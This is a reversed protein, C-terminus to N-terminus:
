QSRSELWRALAPTQKDRTRICNDIVETTQQVARGAAPLKHSAFFSRVDDRSEVSCFSGLGNVLNIDGLSITVKPALEAWHAKIFAWARDRAADNGTFSALYIATDQSRLAPSLAHELARQVLAPDSFNTLAYLYRYREEPSTANSSARMMADFLSADGHVAAINVLKRAVIPDLPTNGNLAALVAQRAKAVVDPDGVISGLADVVVGRLTRQADTDGPRRDFGLREYSPRLLSAVFAHFKQRTEPGTLYDDIFFFRGVAADLVDPDSEDGLGSVLDLYSGLEHRGNRVLAWEDSILSLREPASLTHEIDSALPKVLAPAYV